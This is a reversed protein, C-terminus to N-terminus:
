EDEEVPVVTLRRQKLVEALEDKTMTAISEKGLELLERQYSLEDLPEDGTKILHRLRIAERQESLLDKVTGRYQGYARCWDRTPTGNENIDEAITQQLRSGLRELLDLCRTTETALRTALGSQDASM